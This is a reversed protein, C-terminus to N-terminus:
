HSISDLNEKLRAIQATGEAVRAREKEVVEQPARSVFSPKDLRTQSAAVNKEISAIEQTLRAIESPIDLVDGVPLSIEADGVVSTLSAAPRPESLPTIAVEHVRCLGSLQGLNDRLMEAVTPDDVRIVAHSMWQQPAVHAEARLNRLASVTDQLTRMSPQVDAFRLAEQPRPWPARMISTDGWGFAAWLEETVFPIFPHLLPLLTKFVEELVGQATRRREPGEDGRLAPKSMEIYWDCVDGWTFDYLSRAAEGIDYGDICKTIKQTVEQCRTLIWRDQLRLHTQDIPQSEDDLNMLAFRAANWLKNMFYRYTEIKDSSLLIDRGQTSLAALAMRLADAGYKDIMVLPDIVNGKSKSMKDGKEDRILSHIYVDKFPVEDMFELGMMIMRAVWFFIIDFGTVMLSTPYFYELTPTREPWGM